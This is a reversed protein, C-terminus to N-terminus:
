RGATEDSKREDSIVDIPSDHFAPTAASIIAIGRKDIPRLIYSAFTYRSVGSRKAHVATTTM